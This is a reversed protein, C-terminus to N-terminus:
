SNGSVELEGRRGIQVAFFPLQVQESGGTNEPQRLAFPNDAISHMVQISQSEMALRTFHIVLGFIFCLMITIVVMLMCIFKIRLKKLM